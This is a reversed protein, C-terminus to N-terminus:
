NTTASGAEIAQRPVADVGLWTVTAKDLARKALQIPDPAREPDLRKEEAHLREYEVEAEKQIRRKYRRLRLQLDTRILDFADSKDHDSM